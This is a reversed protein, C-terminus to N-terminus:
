RAEVPWKLYQGRGSAEVPWKLYPGREGARIPRSLRLGRKSAKIPQSLGLGGGDTQVGDTSTQTEHEGINLNDMVGPDNQLCCEQGKRSAKSDKGRSKLKTNTKHSSM